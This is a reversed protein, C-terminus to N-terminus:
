FKCNIVGGASHATQLPSYQSQITAIGLAYEGNRDVHCDYSVVNVGKPLFGIFLSTKADRVERYMGLGDKVTYGSIQEDPELCAARNDILSVYDMDKGCTIIFSVRVKDGVKFRRSEAVEEGAETEKVVFLKKEIKLNECKESKVDKIPSVYQSVIGGWAPSKGSKEITLKKGSVENAMLKVTMIGTLEEGEPLAIEKGDIKIVPSSNDTIWDTGAGLISQIMEVTYPNAGWDETEKQLVLWQRLGDVAPSSPKIESYAELVRSTTLLKPYANYHSAVNDFGWGKTESKIAYQELSELINAVVGEYGYTRSLLIAATAKNYIDLRGWEESIQKLSEKELAAFGKTRDSNKFFSRVYLYGLMAITSIKNDSKQYRELYEADCYKIAKGISTLDVREPLCGSERMMGFRMLASQTMFVSSKMGPCWSWGGDANQLAMIEKVIGDVVRTVSETDLLSSLSQMRLTESTANNVWPTNELAVTKLNEDKELNSKLSTKTAMMRELGARVGPYKRAIHLAMSNAYLSRTLASINKSEPTSISPLAMVCEWVPNNCYKLTLSAEKSYKPLKQTVTTAGDGLYFQTSEVVPTSSPLVPIYTQEGDSFNESMAYATLELIEVESPVDFGITVSRSRSPAIEVGPFEEEAVVSGSLADAIVIKGNVVRSEATNNFLLATLTAKDSSRVYRPANMQVMVPKSAVADEILTAALLNDTYGALQFQWTTNFNPVTFKVELNGESDADLAPMFFALPMEVPRLRSGGEEGGETVAGTEAEEVAEETIMDASEQKAMVMMPAADMLVMNEGTIVGGDAANMASKSQASLGRSRLGYYGGGGALPYGYTNWDPILMMNGKIRPITSFDGSITWEDPSSYYLYTSIDWYDNGTSLNWKFPSLANLAKNSMVAFASVGRASMSDIKFNFKWEEKVGATLKKRFTSIGITMKKKQEAPILEVSQQSMKFNHMGTFIVKIREDNQPAAVNVKVNADDAKVWERSLIGKENSVVCLLYSGPYGSGATIAVDDTGSPVIIESEPVWLEAPYPTKKDDARYVTVIAESKVSDGAINFTMLYQSSPLLKSPLTLRPSEFQGSMVAEGSVNDKVRYDVKKVVPLDLMDYVPVNFTVSDGTVEVKDEIKPRVSYGTGITFRATPASQTEGSASTVSANLSFIGHEYRTGKLNSIPLVIEFEGDSNTQMSGGFSANGYNDRWWSWWQRWDISYDVEAGELAMGSYTKVVGKFRIEDETGPTSVSDQTVEVYFGPTKYEAVEVSQRASVQKPFSKYTALLSYNGLLGARPIVFEGHCRGNDDTVLSVTDINSYNADKLVVDIEENKLLANKHNDHIWAVLAFELTQGPKYISLDTLIQGRATAEKNRHYVHSDAWQWVVSRGKSARIRYNGEPIKYYGSADTIGSNILKNPNDDKYVRVNAGAVPQQTRADVVYVGASSSQNHNGASLLAIDAVNFTQLQWQAVNKKWQGSLRPTASPLAVYYGEPLAPIDYELEKAFPVNGAAELKISKVLKARKPFDKRSLGNMPVSKEPLSFILVYAENMNRLTAKARSVTNPMYVSSVSIETEKHTLQALDRNVLSSVPSKPFIELWSKMIAYMEKQSASANDRQSDQLNYYQDILYGAYESGGLRSIWDKLFIPRDQRSLLGCKHMIAAVLPAPSNEKVRYDYLGDILENRLAMSEGGPTTVSVPENKFFPIIDGGREEAFSDLVDDANYVMFDYATLGMPEANETNSLISALSSVPLAKASEFGEMSKKVLRNIKVAFLDKSWSFPDEPFSDTPLSRSNYQWRDAEYLLKYLNAELLSALSSYPQHMIGSISDLLGVNNQFSQKSILNRAVIMQMAARLAEVEQGQALARNLVASADKEVTQPFAFDPNQFTSQAETEKMDNIKSVKVSEGSRIAAEASQWPMIFMFAAIAAAKSINYLTVKNM